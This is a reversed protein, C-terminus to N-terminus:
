VGGHEGPDCQLTELTPNLRTWIRTMKTSGCLCCRDLRNDGRERVLHVPFRGPARRFWCVECVTHNFGYAKVNPDMPPVTAEPASM